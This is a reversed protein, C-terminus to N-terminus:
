SQYPYYRVRDVRDKGGPVTRTETGLMPDHLAAEDEARPAFFRQLILETQDAGAAFEAQWQDEDSLLVFRRRGIDGFATRESLVGGRRDDEQGVERRCFEGVGVSRRADM